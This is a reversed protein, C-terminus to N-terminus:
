TRAFGPLTRNAANNGCQRHACQSMEPKKAFEWQLVRQREGRHHRDDSDEAIKRFAREFSAGACFVRGVDQRSVAAYEIPEIAQEEIRWEDVIKCAEVEM